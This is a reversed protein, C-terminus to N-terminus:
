RAMVKVSETFEDCCVQVVLLGKASAPLRVATANGSFEHNDLLHGALNYLAVHRAAPESADDVRIVLLGGATATATVRGGERSSVAIHRIGSPEYDTEFCGLDPAAGKYAIGIAARHEGAYPAVEAGADVLKMNGDAIRMFDTVPLSGDAQRTGECGAPDISKYDSPLTNFDCTVMTGKVSYPAYQSDNRDAIGDSVAVCNTFRIECGAAVNEDMRYTYHSKNSLDKASYGTCNNLIMSGLNHNQDFGKQLNDFALCRNMIINNRGEDSGMKFGNGNGSGAEGSELYGNRFAWCNELTTTVNDPFGGEKKIFQDWGDDSNQWARCGYFYNGTGHSIKVAFGDADGMDPDANYYADCNIVMNYEALNKMQLGTDQNRYFSCYEIINDHAQEVLEKCDEYGGGSVKNREILMGNDGAGCIDLGYVHWYSGTLRIGQNADALPMASFDLVARGGRAFLAIRGSNPEGVASINVRADYHYTGANMYITDGPVVLDVAKQLSAFPRELSGDATADNGAPDCYYVHHAYEPVIIEGSVFTEQQGYAVGVSNVAYARFYYRSSPQLPISVAFTGDTAYAKAKEGDVDPNESLGYCIGTETVPAGGNNVVTGGALVYIYEEDSFTDEQVKATAVEALVPPLTEFQKTEGYGVGALGMAYARCYVVTQAPLGSLEVSFEEGEAKVVHDDVDPEANDASWCVGWETLPKDGQELLAGDVQASSSTVNRVEGTQVTAPIGEPFATVCINDVDVDGGTTENAIKIRNVNKENMAITNETSTELERYKRWTAGADESVYVSLDKGTRGETFSLSVVGQQLVPTIVYSNGKLMRLAHGSGDPIYSANTGKYANLYRWEGQGDVPYVAESAAEEKSQPYSALDEFTQTFYPVRINAVISEGTGDTGDPKTVLVDDIYFNNNSTTYIKLHRVAEDNIEVLHKTWGTTEKYSEVETWDTGNASVEVHVERNQDYAYYILTGAGETLEPLAVGAKNSLLLSYNGGNSQQNSRVNKNTAWLGTASAVSSGKVDWAEAEFDEALYTYAQAMMAAPLVFTGLSLLFRRPM